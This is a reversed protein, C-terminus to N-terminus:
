RKFDSALTVTAARHSTREGDQGRPPVLDGAVVGHATCDALSLLLNRVLIPNSPFSKPDGNTVVSCVDRGQREHNMKADFDGQSGGNPSGSM